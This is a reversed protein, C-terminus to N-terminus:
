SIRPFGQCELTQIAAIELGPELTGLKSELGKTSAQRSEALRTNLNFTYAKLRKALAATRADVQGLAAPNATSQQLVAELRAIRHDLLAM